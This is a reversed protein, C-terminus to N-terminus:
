RAAQACLNEQEKKLEMMKILSKNELMLGDHHSWIGPKGDERSHIPKVVCDPDYKYWKATTLHTGLM